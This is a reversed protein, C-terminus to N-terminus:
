NSRNAAEDKLIRLQDQSDNVVDTIAERDLRLDKTLIEMIIAQALRADIPYPDAVAYDRYETGSFYQIDTPNEAIIIAKGEMIYPYVYASRGIRAYYGFNRSLPEKILAKMILTDIDTPEFSIIGGSGTLRHLGQDEPLSIVAPLIARGLTISNVTISPDDAADTKTFEFMPTPQLWSPDIIPEMRYQEAIMVARYSNIKQFLWADSLDSDDELANQIEKIDYIFEEISM